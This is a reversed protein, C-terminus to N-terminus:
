RRYRGTTSSRARTEFGVARGRVRRPLVRSSSCRHRGSSTTRGYIERAFEVADRDEEAREAPTLQDDAAEEDTMPRLDESVREGVVDITVQTQATFALTADPMEHGVDSVRAGAVEHWGITEKTFGAFGV